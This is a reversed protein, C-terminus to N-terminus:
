SQFKVAPLVQPDLGLLRHLRHQEGAPDTTTRIYVAQGSDTELRVTVRSQTSLIRRLIAWRQTM